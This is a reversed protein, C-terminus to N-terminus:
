GTATGEAESGDDVEPTQGPTQENVRVGVQDELVLEVFGLLRRRGNDFAVLDCPELRM